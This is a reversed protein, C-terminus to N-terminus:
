NDLSYVIKGDSARNGIQLFEQRVLSELRSELISRPVDEIELFCDLLTMEGQQQCLKLIRRDIKENALVQPAVNLDPDRSDYPTEFSTSVSKDNGINVIVQPPVPSRNTLQRSEYGVLAASNYKRDFEQKPMNLLLIFEVFGAITPIYTWFFIAYVIGWGIEGLYFKHVGVGGLFFALAAASNKNKM